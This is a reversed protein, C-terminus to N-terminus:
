QYDTYGFTFIYIGNIKKKTDRKQITKIESPHM